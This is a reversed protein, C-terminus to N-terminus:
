KKNAGMSQWSDDAPPKIFSIRRVSHTYLDVLMTKLLDVFYYNVNLKEKYIKEKEEDIVLEGKDDTKYFAPTHTSNYITGVFRQVKGLHFVSFSPSKNLIQRYSDVLQDLTKANIIRIFINILVERNSILKM